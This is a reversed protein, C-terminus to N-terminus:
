SLIYLILETICIDLRRNMELLLLIPFWEAFVPDKSRLNQIFFSKYVVIFIQGRSTGFVLAVVRGVKSRPGVMRNVLEDFVLARAGILVDIADHIIGLKM